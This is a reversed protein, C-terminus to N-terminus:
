KPRDQDNEKLAAQVEHLLDVFSFPKSIFCRAGEELGRSLNKEEGLATLMIVPIDKTKVNSKLRRCVEFGDLNPMIIDLLILDPKNYEALELCSEGDSATIVTYERRKLLSELTAIVDPEDDVVLIKKAM